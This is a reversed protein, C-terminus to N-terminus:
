RGALEIEATKEAGDSLYAVSVKQGPSLKKLAASYARLDTAAEGNIATIVDGAKLGAAALPSGPTIDQARVGPGPFSFDPVLGTSARREGAQAGPLAPAGAPRTLQDSEGALYDIIEAAFEAQKVMGAADLKDPTDSTKHYDANPGSFFQVAPVGAEIFSQQDSADLPEKVLEYETGTVFGAGRFVHVWKDSSSAGLVLVKGAGLRGVTDFNLAANLKLKM